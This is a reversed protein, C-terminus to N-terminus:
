ARRPIAGTRRPRTAGSPALRRWAERLTKRRSEDRRQAPTPHRREAGASGLGRSAFITIAARDPRPAKTAHHTPLGRSAFCHGSVIAGSSVAQPGHSRLADGDSCRVLARWRPLLRSTSPDCAQPARSAWSSSIEQQEVRLNVPHRGRALRPRRPRDGGVPESNESDILCRQVSPHAAWHPSWAVGAGYVTPGSPISGEQGSSSSSARRSVNVPRVSARARRRATRHARDPRCRTTEAGTSGSVVPRRFM